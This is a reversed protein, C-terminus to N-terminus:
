RSAAPVLIAWQKTEICPVHARREDLSVPTGVKSTTYTLDANQGGWVRLEGAQHRKRLNWVGPTVRM